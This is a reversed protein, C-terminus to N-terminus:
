GHPFLAAVTKMPLFLRDRRDPFRIFDFHEYFRVASEDIADVVIAFAAIHASQVYARHLADLLLYEGLGQGRLSRAVALRGLLTAPVVPYAPLRRAVDQPLDALGVAFSSLTYYGLITAPATADVAVFPAAVLRRADQGAIERLYRDLSANGCSFTARDHQRGLPVVLWPSARAGSM